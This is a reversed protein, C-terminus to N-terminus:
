PQTLATEILRKAEPSAWDADGELRALERGQRDYLITTPMAEAGSDPAITMTSDVFFPLQEGVLEQLRARSIDVHIPREIALALVDFDRGAFAKDLAALTPMEKVCPVCWHAWFNVLLVRGRWDSLRKEAGTADKFPRSSQARPSELVELRSLAGTAFRALGTEERPKSMGEFLMYAFALAGAAFLWVAATLAWSKKQTSATQPAAAVPNQHDTM